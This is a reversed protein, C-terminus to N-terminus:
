KAKAGALGCGGCFSPVGPRQFDRAYFRQAPAQRGAGESNSNKAAEGQNAPSARARTNGEGRKRRPPDPYPALRGEVSRMSLHSTRCSQAEFCAFAFQLGGELSPEAECRLILHLWSARLSGCRM